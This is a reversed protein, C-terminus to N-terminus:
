KCQLVEMIARKVLVQCISKRYEANGRINTGFTIEEAALAAAREIHEDTLANDSLKQAAKEALTARLPRAGVVIRWQDQLRSVAVTLIPYDSASNRMSQYSAERENKKIFIKTLIDKGSPRALFEELTMRGAKFLEVETDLALLATLVDSFGYKSFVTAGITVTNRFQVGIIQSVSQPLIGSFSNQLVVSTELARFTTMAGIEIYGAQEKIYQLGLKSLDIATDIKKSGLKLFACGGLVTNSIHKILIGYAEDLTNPQVLEKITFM